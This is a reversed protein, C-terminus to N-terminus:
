NIQAKLSQNKVKVPKDKFLRKFISKNAKDKRVQEEQEISKIQNRQMERIRVDLQRYYDNTKETSDNIMTKVESMERTIIKDMAPIIDTHVVNEIEIRVQNKIFGALDLTEDKLTEHITTQIIDMFAEKKEESQVDVSSKEQNELNKILNNLPIINDPVLATVGAEELMKMDSCALDQLTNKIARLEIGSDRLQQIFKIMELNEVTYVRHGQSNRLINLNLEKEYYRLVYSHMNLYNSAEKVTLTEKSM